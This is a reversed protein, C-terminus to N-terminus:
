AGDDRAPRGDPEKNIGDGGVITTSESFPLRRAPGSSVTLSILGFRPPRFVFDPVVLPRKSRRCQCVAM